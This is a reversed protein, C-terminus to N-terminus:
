TSVLGLKKNLYQKTQFKIKGLKGFFIVQRESFNLTKKQDLTKRWYFLSNRIINFLILRKTYYNFDTSKDGIDYWINSSVKYLAKSYLLPNLLGYSLFFISTKKKYHFNKIFESLFLNTKKSISKETITKRKISKSAKIYIHEFYFFCLDDIKKPFNEFFESKSIKLSTLFKEINSNNIEGNYLHPELRKFIINKRLNSM